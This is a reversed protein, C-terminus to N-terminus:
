NNSSVISSISWDTTHNLTVVDTRSYGDYNFTIKVKESNDDSQMVAISTKVPMVAVTNAMENILTGKNITNVNNGRQVSFQMDNDLIKDLTKTNGTSIANVYTNVVADETMKPGKTKEAANVAVTAFLLAIAVIGSKLTKMIKSILNNILKIVM